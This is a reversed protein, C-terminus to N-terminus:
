STAVLAYCAVYSNSCRLLRVFLSALHTPPNNTALQRLRQAKLTLLEPDGLVAGVFWVKPM